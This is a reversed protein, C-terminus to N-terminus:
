SVGSDSVKLADFESDNYDIIEGAAITMTIGNVNFSINFSSTNSWMYEKNDLTEKKGTVDSFGLIEEFVYRFPLYTIGDYIQPAVAVANSAIMPLYEIKDNKEIYAFESENKMCWFFDEEQAVVPEATPLPTVEVETENEETAETPIITEEVISESSKEDTFSVNNEDACVSFSAIITSILLSLIISIVKKM